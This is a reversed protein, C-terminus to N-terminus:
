KKKVTYPSLGKASFKTIQKRKEVRHEEIAANCIEQQIVRYRDYVKTGKRAM